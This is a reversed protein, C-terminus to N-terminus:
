NYLLSTSLCILYLQLCVVAKVFVVVLLFCVLHAVMGGLMIVYQHYRHHHCHTIEDSIMANYKQKKNKKVKKVKMSWSGTSQLSLTLRRSFVCSNVTYAICAACHLYNNHRQASYLNIM